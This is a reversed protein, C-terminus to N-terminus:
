VLRKRLKTFDTKDCDERKGICVMIQIYLVPFDPFDVIDVPNNWMIWQSKWLYQPCFGRLYPIKATKEVKKKWMRLKHM